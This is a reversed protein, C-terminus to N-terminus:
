PLDRGWAQFEVLSCWKGPDAAVLRTLRIWAISRARFSFEQFDATPLIRVPLSSGDSFEVLASQWYSDHPFDARIMLRIKDVSVARGFDVRWWLDARQDPGWARQDPGWSQYPWVGHHGNEAAGDIANRERFGPWNKFASNSTAHPFVQAAAPSESPPDLQQDCPNLALNRYGALSSISRVTIRHSSGTFASPAYASADETAARGLPVAFSFAQQATLYLECEPLEADLQAAIRQPGNILIRDGPQYARDFTLETKSDGSGETAALRLGAADRVEIRLSPLRSGLADPAPLQAATPLTAFAALCAAFALALRRPRSLRLRFTM